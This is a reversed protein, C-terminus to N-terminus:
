FVKLHSVFCQKQFPPLAMEFKFCGLEDEDVEEFIEGKKNYIKVLRRESL